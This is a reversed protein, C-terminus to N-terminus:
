ADRRRRIALQERILGAVGFAIIELGILNLWFGATFGSLGVAIGIAVLVTAVSSGSIRREEGPDPAIAVLVGILVIAVAAAAFVVRGVEDDTWIWLMLALAGLWLGWGIVFVQPKM